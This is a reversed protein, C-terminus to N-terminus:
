TPRIWGTKVILEQSRAKQEGRTKTLHLKIERGTRGSINTQPREGSRGQRLEKATYGRAQGGRYDRGKTAVDAESLNTGSEV